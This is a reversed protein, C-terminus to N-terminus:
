PLLITASQGPMAGKHRPIAVELRYKGDMQHVVGTIRGHVRQGAVQVEAKGGPVLGAAESSKLSAQALIEDARVVTFLPNPQCPTAAVLGPEAMRNLVLANFPARLESQGLQHRARQLRAEAGTLAAQSRDFRLQAADLETTSSVTRAYLEKVRDLDRQADALDQALRDVEAKADAVGAKFPIPDLAAMLAGKELVQGALAPVQEVVGTVPMALTVRGSWDLVAAHEAAHVLAVQTCAMLVLPAMWLTPKM